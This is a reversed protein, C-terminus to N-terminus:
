RHSLCEPLLGYVLVYQDRLLWTAPISFIFLCKYDGSVPNSIARSVFRSVDTLAVFNLDHRRHLRGVFSNFSSFLLYAINLEYFRGIFYETQAVSISDSPGDMFVDYSHMLRVSSFSHLGWSMYVVQVFDTPSVFRTATSGAMFCDHSHM